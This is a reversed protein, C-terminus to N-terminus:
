ITLSTDAATTMVYGTPIIPSSSYFEIYPSGSNVCWKSSKDGDVLNGYNEFSYGDTGSTATYTIDGAWAGISTFMALILTLVTQAAFTKTISNKKM